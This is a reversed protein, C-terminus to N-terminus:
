ACAPIAFVCAVVSVQAYEAFENRRMRSFLMSISRILGVNEEAIEALRNELARSLDKQVVPMGYKGTINKWQDKVRKNAGRTFWDAMSKARKYFREQYKERLKEHVGRLWEEFTKARADGTKVPAPISKLSDVVEELMPAILEKLKRAYMARLAANPRIPDLLIRKPKPVDKRAAKRKEYWQRNIGGAAKAM